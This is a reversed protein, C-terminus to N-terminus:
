LLKLHGTVQDLLPKPAPGLGLVTASGAPIQTRGGDHIIRATIELSQAIGQLLELQEEDSVQVVVKAQGDTKWRQLLEPNSRQLSEYCAIAAHGCQAAIKGKTMKLDTRVVMIMKCEETSDSFAGPKADVEEEEYYETYFKGVMFGTIAAGMITVILPAHYTLKEINM